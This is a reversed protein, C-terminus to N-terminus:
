PLLDLWQQKLKTTKELASLDEETGQAITPASFTSIGAEPKVNTTLSNEQLSSALSQPLLPSAPPQPQTPANTVCFSFGDEILAEQTNDTIDVLANFETIQAQDTPAQCVNFITNRTVSPGALDHSAERQPFSIFIPAPVETTSLARFVALDACKLCQSKFDTTADFASGGPGAPGTQGRPGPPGQPGAPLEVDCFILDSVFFGTFPGEECEFKKDKTPYESYMDDSYSDGYAYPEENYYSKGDEDLTYENDYDENNPLYTPEYSDYRDDMGDYYPEAQSGLMFSPSITAITGLVLVTALFIASYRKISVIKNM